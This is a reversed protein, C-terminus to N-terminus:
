GSCIGTSLQIRTQLRVPLLPCVGCEGLQDISGVKVSYIQRCMSEIGCWVDCALRTGRDYAKGNVVQMHRNLFTTCRFPLAPKDACLRQAVGSLVSSGSAGRWKRLRHMHKRVAM